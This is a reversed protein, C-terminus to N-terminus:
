KYRIGYIDLLQVLANSFPINIVEHMSEHWNDLVAMVIVDDVAINFGIIQHEAGAISVKRMNDQNVKAM